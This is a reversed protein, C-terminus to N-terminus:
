VRSGGHLELLRVDGDYSPIFDGRLAAAEWVKMAPHALMTQLYQQAEEALPVNCCFLRWVIPAFMADAISFDGFLYPKNGAFERRADIWISEIRNVDAQVVDSLKAGKLRMKISMPMASRLAAFGSHMEASISRARARAKTDVPWLGKDPHQEHLFEAIALSDWVQFGTEDHLCPVLGNPSYARHTDNAGRGSISCMHEEFPLNFHTMLFWPRLSWSSNNKNGIYLQYM